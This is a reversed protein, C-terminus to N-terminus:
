GIIQEIPTGELEDNKKRQLELHKKWARDVIKKFNALLIEKTRYTILPKLVWDYKMLDRYMSYPEEGEELIPVFPIQYDPVAAMLEQPVAKPKTLDVIVFLSLGALIQIMETFDRNTPREFDFIIPLLNYKRLEERLADLVEKRKKTFRGLILVGKQGITDIVGRIEKNNLLLYIFQAVKINDVTIVPKGRDTVILNQQNTGDNVKIDWVSVGYVYSGTLTTNLLKTKIIQAWRLDAASLDARSVNAKILSAGRLNAGALIARTLKAKYLIAGFLNAKHLRARRLDAGRLDAESLDARRLDARRLDPRLVKPNKIRWANWAAGGQRIIKLQEEDAM